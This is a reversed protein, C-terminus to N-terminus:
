KKNTQYTLTALLISIGFFLYSFKYIYYSFVEWSTFFLIIHSGVYVVAALGIFASSFKEITNRFKPM